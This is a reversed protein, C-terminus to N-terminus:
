FNDVIGAQPALTTSYQGLSTTAMPNQHRQCAPQAPTALFLVVNVGAGHLQTEPSGFTLLSAPFHTEKAYSVQEVSKYITFSGQMFM